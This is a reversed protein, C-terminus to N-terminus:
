RNISDSDTSVLDTLVAPFSELQECNLIGSILLRSGGVYTSPLDIASGFIWACDQPWLFNPAGQIVPHGNASTAVFDSFSAVLRLPGEFILYEGFCCRLLQDVERFPEFVSYHQQTSYGSWVAAYVDDCSTESELMPILSRMQDAPLGRMPNTSYFPATTTPSYASAPTAIAPSQALRHVTRGSWTAVDRWPIEHDSNRSDFPHLIRTYAEFGVPVVSHVRYDFPNTLQETWGTVDRNLRM